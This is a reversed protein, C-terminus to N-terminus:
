ALIINAIDRRFMNVASHISSADPPRKPYTRNSLIALAIGREADIVISGGTFGTKGFTKHSIHDGMFWAQARQWGLGAEGGRVIYPYRGVLLAELFNLLDPVTSFLGAHGVARGHKMFAYASEDHVIGRVEGRWSEIETPAVGTDSPFFTTDVMDLEKFFIDEALQALSGGGVREAIIGLLLAPFNAYSSEASRKLEGSFVRALIEDPHSDKLASLRPSQIRYALLDEITIGSKKVEGIFRSVDDSLSLAGSEIYHLILSATPISKTISATDYITNKEVVSLDEYTLCGFAQIDREGGTYVVGVVCGPFVKEAIARETRESVANPM